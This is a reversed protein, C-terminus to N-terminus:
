FKPYQSLIKTEAELFNKSDKEEINLTKMKTFIKKTM